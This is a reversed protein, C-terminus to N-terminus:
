FSFPAATLPPEFEVKRFHQNLRSASDESRLAGGYEAPHRRPLMSAFASRESSEADRNFTPEIRAALDGFREQGLAAIGGQCAAREAM